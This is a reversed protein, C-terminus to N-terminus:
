NSAETESVGSLNIIGLPAPNSYRKTKFPSNAVVRCYTPIEFDEDSDIQGEIIQSIETWKGDIEFELSFTIGLTRKAKISWIIESVLGSISVVEPLADLALVHSPLDESNTYSQKTSGYALKGSDLRITFKIDTLGPADSLFDIESDQMLKGTAEAEPRKRVEYDDDFESIAIHTIIPSRRGLYLLVFLRAATLLAIGVLIVIWWPFSSSPSDTTIPPEPTPEPGPTPGPEIKSEKGCELDPDTICEPAVEDPDLIGDDDCDPDTICPETPEEGDLLGDDDCDPDTICPETPEEGDPLGDDDCDPDTICPETPEENDRIGDGDCDPNDPCPDDPDLIYDNDRDPEDDFNTVGVRQNEVDTFLADSDTDSISVIIVPYQTKDITTDDVGTVTVIQAEDWNEPTFTLSETVTAEGTDTSTLLLVVDSLPEATLVINFTDTTGTEDVIVYTDNLTIEFGAVDDDLNTGIVTESDVDAFDPDSTADNIEALIEFQIDGDILGDNEPNVTIAQPTDWNEPTFILTQASITAEDSINANLILNENSNVDTPQSLTIEVDSTPQATLVISFTDTTGDESIVTDGGTQIIIFGAEDDDITEVSIATDALGDFDDDTNQSDVSITITSNQNGDILYENFAEVPITQETDWNNTTFTISGIVTVEEVDDSTVTFVVDTVPQATLVITFADSFGDEEVITAGDTEAVAYGPTDDDTTLSSISKPATFAFDENSADVNISVTITSTVTGDVLYDDVGTVTVTQPVNWNSTTFTLSSTVTTETSDSSAIDMVVDTQPQADLVVTFTDTTGSEAVETSGDTETVTFDPIDDDTTTVIVTQDELSDFGDDSNADDISVIVNTDQNGDILTGDDIGTVTITQPTDWDASTFTVSAPVTAEGTNASTITLVVDSTPQADLVITFTDTTGSEDVETSGDSEVITFGPVDDDTTTVSVTQDVVAGFAADSAEQVIAVTIDSIQSGDIIGVDDIGTTTITQPTDWNASTFTISIPNVTVEAEDGSTVSLVVDETPEADLVITFTDTTGSEDVETFGDSEVITFGAVDDDTTTASVTQDDVSDFNDDSNADDVSATIASTITGDIIDDDVGTVTITQPTDWDASTFTVSTTVTAEGTDGSTISIVVDSAPEADLVITFTDTTGSEDVETSGDSEVITFGAVDDDTTTASVTQDDLDDFSDNSNADDVAVTITSTITGDIIDDDVGTVTVTQPTDWNASTFTLPSNVTAEGTDDSTVTLVVDSTPQADLVITFTDTTGSEDVETSGDSEVITFGAVDDDTTTVSVTQDGLDDFNDDSATDLVSITITTLQDDDVIQEDAGTVTVTQPTDWNASTFTISSPNVTAEGTDDSTITLVVDITPQADLVITFTDTTGSEAVETSGDSEVITFGAVDDDTTTVSVTQDDVSDFDDDSNADDVAVTITSVIDGDVFGDDVGTVTVTQPTDWDAATFTVSATVTAEGTDDSTVTLVVDSTPQADLVVTFTDTTGSEDVGTSGDSEVITFGPVDDDTTT